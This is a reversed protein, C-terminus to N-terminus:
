GHFYSQLIRLYIRTLQYLDDVAVHEDTKHITSNILGCEVVPGYRAIFRADSTGGGTSLAPKRGTISEVASSVLDTFPGLKTLFSEANSSTTLDYSVGTNNLCSRIRDELTHATWQDNFRVNFRAAGRAPIVNDAPNGVDISVIELNSAQFHPSGQDLTLQDLASLLRILRPLPNDARDPYAVHGQIGQVTLLGTLSGRRGIKIEDGLSQPNSPEGVLWVDALHENEKMWQLVKVTGDIAEAEEDGTILFSISGRFDSSQELFQSVAGAFCAINAKMDATGRGYIRGESLIASFPAFRWLTLDGPPVVDTHGCFCIHPGRTGIRAFLNQINGFPLNHCAFGLAHLNDRLVTQAGADDPTISPCRVLKQTLAIPDIIQSM